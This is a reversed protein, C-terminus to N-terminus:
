ENTKNLNRFVNTCCVGATLLRGVFLAVIGYSWIGEVTAQQSIAYVAVLTSVATGVALTRFQNAGVALSEVMLTLSVLIQQWALHPILKHLHEQIVPDKTFLQPAVFDIGDVVLMSVIGQAIALRLMYWTLSRVQEGDAQSYARSMLVQGSVAAGDLILAFVLWISLGVQHAAVHETGLRTARATAYAWGLLLSGQKMLMAANAGLIVRIIQIRSIPKVDVKAPDIDTAEIISSTRDSMVNPNEGRPLMDRRVLNYAYTAAAGVQSIATAVAAGRVGWGATFMLLPDLVLNLGAAVLSALLPIVTNGYGRFAGEAVGIFLVAPAAWLRSYLYDTAAPFLASSAPVGMGALVRRGFLYLTLSVFLGVWWGFWLSIATVQKAACSSTHGGRKSISLQTAVLSTTAATTARFANFALHFISTCAGLAALETTGVRGVYATDMLSLLPDALMGVFAPIAIELCLPTWKYVIKPAHADVINEAPGVTSHQVHVRHLPRFCRSRHRRLCPHLQHVQRTTHIRFLLLHSKCINTGAIPLSFSFASSSLFSLSWLRVFASPLMSWRHIRVTVLLSDHAYPKPQLLSNLSLVIADTSSISRYRYLVKPIKPSSAIKIERARWTEVV